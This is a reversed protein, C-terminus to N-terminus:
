MKALKRDYPLVPGSAQTLFEFEDRGGMGYTQRHSMGPTILHDEKPQMPAQPRSSQTQTDTQPLGLFGGGYAPQQRPIYRLGTQREIATPPEDRHGTVAPDGLPPPGHLFDLDLPTPTPGRGHLGHDFQAGAHPGHHM